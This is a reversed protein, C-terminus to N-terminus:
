FLRVVSVLQEYQVNNRTKNEVVTVVKEASPKGTANSDVPCPGPHGSRAPRYTYIHIYGSQRSKRSYPSGLPPRLPASVFKSGRSCIQIRPNVAM